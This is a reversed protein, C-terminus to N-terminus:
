APLLDAIKAIVEDLIQQKSSDFHIANPNIGVLLNTDRARDYIVRGTHDNLGNKADKVFHKFALTGLIVVVPPRLLEIEKDLWVPCESLTKNDWKKTDEPKPSKILSTLYVDKMSLGIQDLSQELSNIYSGHAMEDAGEEKWSVGDVVMMVRAPGKIWPKPHCLGSLSCRDCDRWAQVLETLQPVTFHDLVLGERDIIVAEDTLGQLLEVHDRRRTHDTAPLQGPEIRAFAGVKDLLERHRSNCKRKEVRAELDAISTFRGTKRAETIANATNNSVGKIATFPMLITTANLPEFVDSSDNIDPPLLTIGVRKMDALAVAKRDSDKLITLLGCFFEAPYYVKLYMCIYSILAYASAHSKNFGYGAFKEIQDFIEGAFEATVGHKSVAGDVFKERFTKMKDKDKKGMAKRLHDAEVLTFGAFDRSVHMVEEQYVMVGYTDRLADEMSPHPYSVSLAGQKIKVFQDMLGSDMPGPRYLATAATIDEFTLPSAEALDRLLKRMGHSEFQFVGVTEGRGFAGMVKPDDLPIDKPDFRKSHMKWIHRAAVDIMDLTSLGLVDIKVLGFDEVLQKDWNVVAEGDRREVVAREAIPVGAVVIGAAHKGYARMRDELNRAHRIIEPNEDGFKALEPVQTLAEELSLPQGHEKPVLKGFAFTKGTFNLQRCTDQLAGAAAMTNYNAVAAVKDEGFRGKIWTIVEERRTSMFDLDADPLDIRDPNIFREFLLNFRIPDIDTIGMLYAVLSGGVSGRAPGVRIGQSKSWNVIESVLLFYAEFKLKRLVGLEYKLREKYPTLDTPKHGFVPAAFREKWGAVCAAQLAGFEDAAMKPLSPPQKEWKFTVTDPFRKTFASAGALSGVYSDGYAAKLAGSLERYHTLLQAEDKAVWERWYHKASWEFKQHNAIAQLLDLSDAQDEQKYFFPTGILVPVNQAKELEFAEKAMRLFHPLPLPIIESAVAVGAAQLAAAVAVGKGAATASYFDGLTVLAADTGVSGMLECVDSLLLRPVEYFRQPSFARSLLELLAKYGAETRILVRLFYPRNKKKSAKDTTLEDVIRLRAGIIPKIEHTKCAKIFEPVGTIRMTDSICASKCGVKALEDALETPTMLSEGLSFHSRNNLAVTM